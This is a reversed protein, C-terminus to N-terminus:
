RSRRDPAQRHPRPGHRVLERRLILKLRRQEIAQGVVLRVLFELRAQLADDGLSPKAVGHQTIEGPQEVGRSEVRVHIGVVSGFARRETIM